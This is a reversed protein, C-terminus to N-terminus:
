SGSKTPWFYEELERTMFQLPELVLRLGMVKLPAPMNLFKGLEKNDTVRFTIETSPIGKKALIEQEKKFQQLRTQLHSQRFIIKLYAIKIPNYYFEVVEHFFQVLWNYDDTTPKVATLLMGLIDQFGAPTFERFMDLYPQASNSKYKLDDSYFKLLSQALEYDDSFEFTHCGEAYKLLIKYIVEPDADAYGIVLMAYALANNENKSDSLFPIINEFSQFNKFSVLVVTGRTSLGYNKRRSKGIVEVLRLRLLTKLVSQLQLYSIKTIRSIEYRPLPGSKGLVYICSLYKEKQSKEKGSRHNSNITPFLSLIKKDAEELFQFSFSEGSTQEM